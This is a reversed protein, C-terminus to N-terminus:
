TRMPLKIGREQCLDKRVFLVATNYDYPVALTKGRSSVMWLIRQDIYDSRGVEDIIDDVPLVWERLGPALASLPNGTAVLECPKGAKISLEIKYKM